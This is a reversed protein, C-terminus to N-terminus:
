LHVGLPFVEIHVLAPQAIADARRLHTNLYERAGSFVIAILVFIRVFAALTFGGRVIVPRPTWAPAFSHQQGTPCQSTPPLAYPGALPLKFLPVGIGRVRRLTSPKIDGYHPARMM